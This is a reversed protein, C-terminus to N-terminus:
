DVSSNIANANWKKRQKWLIIPVAVVTAVGQVLICIIVSLIWWTNKGYDQSSNYDIAYTMCYSVFVSGVFSAANVRLLLLWPRAHPLLFALFACPVAVLPYIYLTKEFSKNGAETPPDNTQALTYAACCVFVWLLEPGMIKSLASKM